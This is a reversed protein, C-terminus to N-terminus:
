NKFNFLQQANATTAKAVENLSINLSEAVKNAIYILHASENRKGRFPVPALYPADTELVIHEIGIDQITKSLGSNKFTVIGGIGLLFGKQIIFEADSVSGTFAHFIGRLDVGDFEEIIKFIESFSDRAHIVVPLNYSMALNLQLRFAIKQNELNTKDWFLDIGIEGVGVYIGKKLENTVFKLEKKPNNGVSTPHLGILPYCIKPFSKYVELMPGVSAGDVNPLVMTKVGVQLANGIVQDLDSILDKSFLHTHTDIFYM